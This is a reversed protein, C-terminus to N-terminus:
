CERRWVGIVSKGVRFFTLPDLLKSPPVLKSDWFKIQELTPMSAKLFLRNALSALMGVSDLYFLKERRLGDIEGVRGMTKRSYRRFHGIAEDFPTFLWQHAPCLIVLHGGPKLRDRARLVEAGDDEIHELVDIYIATDYLKGERTDDITGVIVEAPARAPLPEKEFAARMKAALEPDPEVSTWTDANESCLVRATAGIGGGIELVDGGIYRILKSRYYRKWNRALQFIELEDGIYEIESGSSENSSTAM